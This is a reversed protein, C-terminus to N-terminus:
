PYVRITVTSVFYFLIIICTGERKADEIATEYETDDPLNSTMKKFDIPLFTKM